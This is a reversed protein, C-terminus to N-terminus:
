KRKVSLSIGESSVVLAESGAPLTTSDVNHLKWTAGWLTGDGKAGPAIESLVTVVAGEVQGQTTRTGTRGLLEALQKAFAIWLVIATTCFLLVEYMWDSLLGLAVLSGVLIGAVGLILLYFGSPMLVEVTVLAIGGVLWIWADM